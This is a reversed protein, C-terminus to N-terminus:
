QDKVVIELHLCGNRQPNIWRVGTHDSDMNRTELLKELRDMMRSYKGRMCFYATYLTFFGLCGEAFTVCGVHEAEVFIENIQRVTAVYEGKDLRGELVDPFSTDFRPTMGVTYDRPVMVSCTGAGGTGHTGSVVAVAAMGGRVGSSGCTTTTTTTTTATAASTATADAMVAGGDGGTDGRHM